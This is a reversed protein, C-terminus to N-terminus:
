KGHGEQQRVRGGGPELRFDYHETSADHQQVVFHRRAGRRGREATRGFHRKRRYEELTPRDDQKRQPV